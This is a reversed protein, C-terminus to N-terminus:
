VGVPTKNLAEGLFNLAIGLWPWFLLFVFALLAMAPITVLSVFRKGGFFSIVRPLQITHFKNYLYQVVLGVVIGGFVWTQLSRIGLTSGVLQKLSNASR